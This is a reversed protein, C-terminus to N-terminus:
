LVPGSGHLTETPIDKCSFSIVYTIHRTPSIDVKKAESFMSCEQSRMVLRQGSNRVNKVPLM